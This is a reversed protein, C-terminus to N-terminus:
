RIDEGVDCAGLKFSTEGGYQILSKQLRGELVFLPGFNGWVVTNKSSHSM